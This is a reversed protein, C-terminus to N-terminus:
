ASQTSLPGETVRKHFKALAGEEDAEVAEYIRMEESLAEAVEEINDEAWARWRLDRLREALLITNDELPQAEVTQLMRHGDPVSALIKVLESPSMRCEIEVYHNGSAGGHTSSLRLAEVAGVENILTLATLADELMEARFLYVVMKVAQRARWAEVMEDNTQSTM